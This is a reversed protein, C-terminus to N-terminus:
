TNFIIYCASEVTFSELDWAKLAPIMTQKTGTASPVTDPKHNASLSAISIYKPSQIKKKFFLSIKSKPSM